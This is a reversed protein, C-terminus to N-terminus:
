RALDYGAAGTSGRKPLIAKDSLRKVQLTEPQTKRLKNPQEPMINEGASVSLPQMKIVKWALRGLSPKQSFLQPCRQM